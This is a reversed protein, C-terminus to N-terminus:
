QEPNNTTTGASYTKQVADSANPLSDATTLETLTMKDINTGPHRTSKRYRTAPYSVIRFMGTALSRPLSGASDNLFTFSLVTLLAASLITLQRHRGNSALYVVADALAPRIVQVSDPKAEVGGFLLERTVPVLQRGSRRDPLSAEALRRAFQPDTKLAATVRELYDIQDELQVLRVANQSYQRRVRIWEALKPSLAVAAYLLAALSLCTWFMLSVLWVAAAPAPSSVFEGGSLSGSGTTGVCPAAITPLETISAAGCENHRMARDEADDTM